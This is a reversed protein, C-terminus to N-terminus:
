KINILTQINWKIDYIQILNKINNQITLGSKTHSSINKINLLKIIINIIYKNINFFIINIIYILTLTLTL